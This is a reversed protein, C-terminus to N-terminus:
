AHSVPQGVGHQQCRAAVAQVTRSSARLAPIVGTIAATLLALATMAVSVRWDVHITSTM